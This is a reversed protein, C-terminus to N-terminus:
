RPGPFLPKNTKDVLVMAPASYATNTPVGAAPMCSQIVDLVITGSTFLTM